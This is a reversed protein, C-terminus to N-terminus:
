REGEPIPPMNPRKEDLEETTLKDEKEDRIWDERNEFDYDYEDDM